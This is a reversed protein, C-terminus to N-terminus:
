KLFVACFFFNNLFYRLADRKTVVSDMGDSQTAYVKSWLVRVGVVTM